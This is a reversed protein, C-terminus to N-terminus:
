DARRASLFELLRRGDESAALADIAARVRMAVECVEEEDGALRILVRDELPYSGIQVGPFDHELESLVSALASEPFRHEVEERWLM